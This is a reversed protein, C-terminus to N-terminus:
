SLYKLLRALKEADSQAMIEHETFVIDGVLTVLKNKTFDTSGKMTM